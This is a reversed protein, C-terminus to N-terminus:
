DRRLAERRIQMKGTDTQKFYDEQLAGEWAGYMPNPLVVFRTGFEARMRDVAQKRDSALGDFATSFDGLNDGALLVIRSHTRIADRRPKKSSTDSRFLCHDPDAQPFGADRLNRISEELVVEKRNSVYYVAVGQSDAWTLFE